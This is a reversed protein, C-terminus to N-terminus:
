DAQSITLQLGDAPRMSWTAHLGDWDGEHLGDATTTSEIQTMVDDSVTLLKLICQVTAMPAGTSGSSPTGEITVSRGDASLQVYPSRETNCTTVADSVPASPGCAALTMAAAMVGAAGTICRWPTPRPSTVALDDGEAQARRRGPRTLVYACM